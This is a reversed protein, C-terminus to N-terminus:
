SASTSKMPIVKVYNCHYIYCVMVYSNGKSSRVPFKGKLGTYLQGQDVVVAYVLHTKAGLDKDPPQSKKQSTGELNITHEPAAPEHSGHCHGADTDFTQQHRRGDPRALHDSTWRQSSTVNSSENSQILSQTLLPSLSM